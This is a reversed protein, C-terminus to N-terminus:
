NNFPIDNHHVMCKKAVIILSVNNTNITSIDMNDDAESGRVIIKINDYRYMENKIAIIRDKLDKITKLNNDIEVDFKGGFELVTISTM